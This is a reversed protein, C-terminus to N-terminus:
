IRFCFSGGRRRAQVPVAIRAERLLDAEVCAEGGPRAYGAVRARRLGDASPPPVVLLVHFGRAPLAGVAVRVILRAPVRRGALTRAEVRWDYLWSTCLNEDPCPAPGKDWMARVPGEVLAHRDAPAPEAGAACGSAAPALLACAALKAARNL